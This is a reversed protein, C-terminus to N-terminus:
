PKSSSFVAFRALFRNRKEVTLVDIALLLFALVLPYQFRDEYQTFRKSGYDKKEMKEIAGFVDALNNRANSARTYTGHGASAIDRLTTEDLRTVVVAGSQDTKYGGGGEGGVPIPAGEPSGMGITHITIGQEAADKAAAIPDDEHNEGDTIIILAKGRTDAPANEGSPKDSAFSRVAQEIASGIATGARPASGVSIIDSLMLAAAYDTTLPVQVYADGSFVMVGIRDGKLNDILETLERKAAELRNPKIDQARMSASVDVAVLLDIGSRTVEEFKTGIRPNAAAVILAAAALTFLLARFWYKLRSREDVMAAMMDQNGYARIRTRMMWWLVAFLLPLLPLALLIRLYEPHAFQIV